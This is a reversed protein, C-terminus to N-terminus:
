AGCGIYNTTLGSAGPNKGGTILGMFESNSYQLNFMKLIPLFYTGTSIASSPIRWWALYNGASPSPFTCTQPGGVGGGVAICSAELERGYYKPVLAPNAFLVSVQEIWIIITGTQVGQSYSPSRGSGVQVFTAAFGHDSNATDTNNVLPNAPFPYASLYNTLSNSTAKGLVAVVPVTSVCAESLLGTTSCDAKYSSCNAQYFANMALFIEDVESNLNIIAAQNQWEYVLKLSFILLASGVALALMVELLTVGSQHRLIDKINEKPHRSRM